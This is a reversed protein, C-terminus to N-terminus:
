GTRLLTTSKYETKARIKEAANTSKSKQGGLLRMVNCPSKQRPLITFESKLLIKLFCAM